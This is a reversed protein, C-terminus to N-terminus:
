ARKRSGRFTLRCVEHIVVEISNAPFSLTFRNGFSGDDHFLRVKEAKDTNTDGYDVNDIIFKVIVESHKM